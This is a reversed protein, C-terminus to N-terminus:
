TPAVAPARRRRLMGGAAGFGILMLAWAAPEPVGPPVDVQVPVNRSFNDLTWASYQQPATLRATITVTDFPNDALIGFFTTTAGAPVITTVGGAAITFQADHGFLEMFDFGIATVPSLVSATLVESEWYLYDSGYQTPAAWFGVGANKSHILIESGTFGVGNNGGSSGFYVGDFGGPVVGEFTSTIQAGVAADFSARDSFVTNALAPTSL